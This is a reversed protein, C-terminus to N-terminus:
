TIKVTVKAVGELCSVKFLYRYNHFPNTGARDNLIGVAVVEARGFFEEDIRKINKLSEECTQEKEIAKVGVRPQEACQGKLYIGEAARLYFARVRVTKGFYLEPKSVLECYSVTPIEGDRALKPNGVAGPAVCKPPRVFLQEGEGAHILLSTKSNATWSLVTGDKLAITGRQFPGAKTSYTGSGPTLYPLAALLSAPTYWNGPAGPDITIRDVDGPKPLTVPQARHQSAVVPLLTSLLFVAVFLNKM